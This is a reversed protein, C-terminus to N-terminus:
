HRHRDSVPKLSHDEQFPELTVITALNSSCVRRSRQFIKARYVCNFSIRDLRFNYVSPLLIDFNDRFKLFKNTEALSWFLIQDKVKNKKKKNNNNSNDNNNISKRIRPDMKM